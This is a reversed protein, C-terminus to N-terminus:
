LNEPFDTRNALLGQFLAELYAAPSTPKNMLRRISTLHLKVTSQSLHVAEATEPIQFDSAGYALLIEIERDSLM